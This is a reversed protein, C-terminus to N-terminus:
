GREPTTRSAARQLGDCWVRASTDWSFRAAVARGRTAHEPGHALARRLAAACAAADGCPFLEAADSAVEVHAPIDSVALPVGAALAELATIGFGELRSPLVVAAARAYLECLAGDDLAGALELRTAVGLAEARARLRVDEDGKALGVLVIRPLGPDLALVELLLGLDKRPEIHGVHLVFPDAAPRRPRFQLHDVANPVIDITDDDLGFHHVVRAKTAASVTFVRVARRFAHGLVKPGLLRRVFSARDLDLSRLDHVTLTFPADVDRPVPHHGFHVLDFPRGAARAAALARSLAAGEHMARHFTPLWPVDSTFRVVEDPLPFTIPVRGELVALEGGRETLLRALRPLLEANHRVVGGMPQGLVTGSVLVRPAKGHLTENGSADHPASM